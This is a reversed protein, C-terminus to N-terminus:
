LLTEISEWIMITHNQKTIAHILQYISVKSSRLFVYHAHTYCLNCNLVFEALDSRPKDPMNSSHAEIKLLDSNLQVIMIAFKCIPM